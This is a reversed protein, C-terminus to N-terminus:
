EHARGVGPRSPRISSSLDIDDLTLGAHGPPHRRRLRREVRPRAAPTSRRTPERGSRAVRHHLTRQRIWALGRHRLTIMMMPLGHSRQLGYGCPKFEWPRKPFLARHLIRNAPTTVARPPSLRFRVPGTPRQHCRRGRHHALGIVKIAASTARAASRSSRSSFESRARCSGNGAAVTPRTARNLPCGSVGRRAPHM